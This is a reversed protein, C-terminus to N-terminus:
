FPPPTIIQTNDKKPEVMPSNAASGTQAKPRKDASTKGVGFQQTVAKDGVIDKKAKPQARLINTPTLMPMSRAQTIRHIWRKNNEIFDALDSYVNVFTPSATFILPSIPGNIMFPYIGTSAPSIFQRYLDVQRPDDTLGELRKVDEGVLGYGSYVFTLQKWIGYRLDGPSQLIYTWGIGFKRTDLSFGELMTALRTIEESDSREPAYRWAEDFVIQTNLNGNSVSFASEAAKKLEELVVMLIIAKIDQNDLLKQMGLEKDRSLEAKAHLTTNPSMDLIVYPAPVAPNTGRVQLVDNLFGHTGGLSRRKGGDFNSNSFLSHIPQFGQLVSIWTADADKLDEDTWQPYLGAEEEEPSPIPDLGALQLLTDRLADQRDGKTYIRNLTAPSQAIEAFIKELLYRSDKNIEDRMQAFREAVERSFLEKNESGMRRFRSWLNTKDIIKTLVDIDLPLQIDEAVRLAHVPRGLGRAFEQPSFLFGNENNWQGQPDIVIIAHNEYQMQASLLFTALATKGSGSRGIISSHTAGRNSAFDPLTLPLPQKMGRFYGISPYQTNTLMEELAIDDLLYAPSSTAPSNPLASGHQKWEDEERVFVAQINLTTTRIDTSNNLNSGGKATAIMMPGSSALANQTEVDTVTGIARYLKGDFTSDFYALKGIVPPVSGDNVLAVIRIFRSSSPSSTVGFTQHSSM